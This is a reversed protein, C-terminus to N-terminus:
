QEEQIVRVRYILEVVVDGENVENENHWKFVSEVSGADFNLVSKEMDKILEAPLKDCKGLANEIYKSAM